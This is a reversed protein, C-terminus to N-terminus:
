KLVSWLTNFIARMTNAIEKSEILIGIPKATHYTFLAVKEEFINLDADIPFQDPHMFKATRLMTSDSANDVPGAQRTYIVYSQIGKAIRRQTYEQENNPFMQFLKDLNVFGQIKKDKTKLFDERIATTGEVGEFFRVKPREGAGAFLDQLAPLIRTIENKKFQIEQEFANLLTSLRDPTEPVYFTKKGKEVESMLGKSKLSEIQVYTTPRNIGAKQAIHQVTDPGLELAALYVRSEKDSLGLSQLEKEYM